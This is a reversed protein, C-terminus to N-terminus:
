IDAKIVSFHSFVKGTAKLTLFYYSKGFCARLSTAVFPSNRANSDGTIYSQLRWSIFM